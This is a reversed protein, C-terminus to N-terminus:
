AQENETPEGTMEGSTPEGAEPEHMQAMLDRIHKGAQAHATAGSFAAPPEEPMSPGYQEGPGPHHQKSVLFGRNASPEISIRKLKGRKPKVKGTAHAM